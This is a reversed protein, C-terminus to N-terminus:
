TLISILSMSLSEDEEGEKAVFWSGLCGVIM